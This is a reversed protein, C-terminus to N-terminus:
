IAKTHGSIATLSWAVLSRLSMTSALAAYGADRVGPLGKVVDADPPMARKSSALLRIACRHPNGRQGVNRVVDQQAGRWSTRRAKNSGFRVESVERTLQPRNQHM